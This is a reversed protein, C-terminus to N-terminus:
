VSSQGAVNDNKEKKPGKDQFPQADRIYVFSQFSYNKSNYNQSPACSFPGIKVTNIAKLELLVVAYLDDGVEAILLPM